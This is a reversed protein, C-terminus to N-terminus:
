SVLPIIWCNAHLKAIQGAPMEKKIRDAVVHVKARMPCDCAECTGLREDYDTRVDMDKLMGFLGMIQTAVAKTFRQVLTSKTNNLPCMVCIAARRNAELADVVTGGPGFMEAYTTFASKVSGAAGGARDLLGQSTKKQAVPEGANFDVFNLWGHAVMRQAEREDIWEEQTERDTPWGHKAALAPNKLVIKAFHDVVENFSGEFPTAMGIEPLLVQFQHPPFRTRSKLRM